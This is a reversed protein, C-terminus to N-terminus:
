PMHNIVRLTPIAGLLLCNRCYFDLNRGHTVFFDFQHSKLAGVPWRAEFSVETQALPFM